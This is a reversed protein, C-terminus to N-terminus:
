APRLQRRGAASWRPPRRSLEPRSVWWRARPWRSARGWRSAPAAASRGASGKSPTAESRPNVARASWVRVVLKGTARSEKMTRHAEAIEDLSFVRDLNVRYRCAAVGDVIRQLATGSNAATITESDYVSLRITSPIDVLPEFREFVWANGLIGSNCVIDRRAVARLSDHLTVVGVLDLAADVGGPVRRRVEEAIEGTDLV